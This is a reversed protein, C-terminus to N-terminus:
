TSLKRTNGPSLPALKLRYIAGGRIQEALELAKHTNARLVITNSRLAAIELSRSVQKNVRDLTALLLATRARLEETNRLLRVQEDSTLHRAANAEHVRPSHLWADIERKFAIVASRHKGRPRRVPFRLEQEWRQVTRVGRGTYAAIEKWSNLVDDNM